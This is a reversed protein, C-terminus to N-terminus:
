GFLGLGFFSDIQGALVLAMGIPATVKFCFMWFGKGAFSNGELSVESEVWEAKLKYGVIVALILSGLPMMIGEALLDYFDLWCFKGVNALHGGPFGLANLCTPVNEIFLLLSIIGVIAKRNYSQGKSIKSDIYASAVGEILSISSTIAAIFVLFYMLFGFIPGLTGMGNFVAQLTIFLLGPGGAPEMGMAFVAPMVALGAMLAVITDCIPVIVSNRVLSEKKSLYSGYTIMAAMGLSLSFFVQGGATALTSIWGTGRFISFDPSFMFELGKTAGPLTNSRIIVILLMVFLAPMAITTFKEIGGAVGGMVIVVNLIMFIAMFLVTTKSNTVFDVFYQQADAKFIGEHTFISAFNASFYKMCYGGLTCYFGLIIFASAVAMFGLVSYGKGITGYAQIPAKGTKRGLTFEGLMIVAGVFFVLLLYLFLFAFGGSKGLKYPFGWINGLGVASGVSAMIFGFNSNFQGKSESM